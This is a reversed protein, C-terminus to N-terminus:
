GWSGHCDQLSCRIRPCKAWWAFFARHGASRRDFSRDDTAGAPAGAEIGHEREPRRRERIRQEIVVRQRPGLGPVRQIEDEARRAREHLDCERDRGLLHELLVRVERREGVGDDLVGPTMEVRSTASRESPGSLGRSPSRSCRRSGGAAVVHLGADRHEADVRGPVDGRDRSSCPTGVRQALEEAVSTAASSRAVPRRARRAARSCRARGRERRSRRRRPSRWSGRRRRRRPSRSATRARGPRAVELEVRDVM